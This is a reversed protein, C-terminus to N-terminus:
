SGTAKEKPGRWLWQNSSAEMLVDSPTASGKQITRCGAAGLLGELRCRCVTFLHPEAVSSAEPFGDMDAMM